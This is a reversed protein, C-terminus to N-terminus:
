LLWKSQYTDYPSNKVDDYTVIPLDEQKRFERVYEDVWNFTFRSSFEQLKDQVVLPFAGITIPFIEGPNEEKIRDNSALSTNNYESLDPKIKENFLDELYAVEFGTKFALEEISKRNNKLYLAVWAGPTLRYGYNQQSISSRWNMEVRCRDLLGREIDESRLFERIFRKLTKPHDTAPAYVMDCYDPSRYAIYRVAEEVRFDLFSNLHFDKTGVNHGSVKKIYIQSPSFEALVRDSHCDVYHLYWRTIISGEPLLRDLFPGVPLHSFREFSWLVDLHEDDCFLAIKDDHYCKRGSVIYRVGLECLRLYDEIM